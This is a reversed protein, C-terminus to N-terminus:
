KSSIGLEPHVSTDGLKVAPHHEKMACRERKEGFMLLMQLVASGAAICVKTSKCKKHKKLAVCQDSETLLFQSFNAEAHVKYQIPGLTDWRRNHFWQTSQPNNDVLQLQIRAGNAFGRHRLPAVLIM